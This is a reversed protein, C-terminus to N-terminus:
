AAQPLVPLNDFYFEDPMKGYLSSYQGHKARCQNLLVVVLRLIRIKLVVERLM